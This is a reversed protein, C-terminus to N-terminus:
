HLPLEEGSFLILRPGGFGQHSQLIGVLQVRSCNGSPLKWTVKECTKGASYKDKCYSPPNSAYGGRTEEWKPPLTGVPPSRRKTGLQHWHCGGTVATKRWTNAEPAARPSGWRRVRWDTGWLVVFIEWMEEQERALRGRCGLSKHTEATPEEQQPQQPSHDM